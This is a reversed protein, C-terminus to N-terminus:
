TDIMFNWICLLEKWDEGLPPDGTSDETQETHERDIASGPGCDLSDELSYERRMTDRSCNSTRDVRSENEARSETVAPAENGSV